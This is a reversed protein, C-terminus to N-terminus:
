CCCYLMLVSFFYIGTSRFIQPFYTSGTSDTPFMIDNYNLIDSIFFRCFFCIAVYFLLSVFLNHTSITSLPSFRRVVKILIILFRIFQMMLWCLFEFSLVITSKKNWIFIINFVFPSKKPHRLRHVFLNAVYFGSIMRLKLNRISLSKETRESIWILDTWLVYWDVFLQSAGSIFLSHGAMTPDAKLQTWV